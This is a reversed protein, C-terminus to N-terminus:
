FVRLLLCQRIGWRKLMTFCVVVSEALRHDIKHKFGGCVSTELIMQDHGRTSNVLCKHLLSHLFLLLLLLSREFLREHRKSSGVCVCASFRDVCVIIVSRMQMRYMCLAREKRWVRNWKKVAKRCFM